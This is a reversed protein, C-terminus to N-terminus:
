CQSETGGCHVLLPLLIEKLNLNIKILEIRFCHLNFQVGFSLIAARRNPLGHITTLAEDTRCVAENIGDSNGRSARCSVVGRPQNGVM